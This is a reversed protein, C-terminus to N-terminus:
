LDGFLAGLMDIGEGQRELRPPLMLMGQPPLWPM